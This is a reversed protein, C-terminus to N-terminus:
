SSCSLAPLSQDPRPPLALDDYGEQWVHPTRLVTFLRELPLVDGRQAAEIANQALHNRLVYLPNHQDMQQVRELQSHQNLQSRQQYRTLWAQADESDGFLALWADPHEFM